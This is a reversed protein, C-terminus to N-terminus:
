KGRKWFYYARYWSATKKWFSFGTDQPFINVRFIERPDDFLNKGGSDTAIGFAFDSDTLAQKAKEDIAGFPYAFSVVQTSFATELIEKSKRIEELCDAYSLKPFHRHSISHAGLEMGDQVLEQIEQRTLLEPELEQPDWFNTRLQFDALVFFVGKMGFKKLLPLARTKMSRYGDDFTLIIPKQPLPKNALVLHYLDFFGISQFGKQQLFELQASFARETIYTKHNSRFDEGVVKHYMLIPLYKPARKELLAQFYVKQIKRAVTKLSFEQQVANKLLHGSDSGSPHQLIEAIAEPIKEIVPRLNETPAIDGFNSALAEAFNPERVWGHCYAEGLAVLPKGAALGEIAIRGSAIVIKGGGLINKLQHKDVYEYINVRDPWRSKASKLQSQAEASLKGIPGGVITFPENTKELLPVLHEALFTSAAVGKPGSTRGALVIGSQGTSEPFDAFGNPITHIRAPSLGVEHILHQRINECVAITQQGYVSYLKTSFHLHQRGHVTSVYGCSERRCTWHAVWSSARSHAHVIDIRNKGIFKRLEHINKRRERWSRKAIPLPFFPLNHPIHLKDSILFVEHGQRVQEQALEVAYVEAGTLETQSLLHLIRM